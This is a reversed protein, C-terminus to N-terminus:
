IIDFNPKPKEEDETSEEEEDVEKNSKLKETSYEKMGFRDTVFELTLVILELLMTHEYPNFYISNRTIEMMMIKDRQSDVVYLMEEEIFAGFFNKDYYHLIDDTFERREKQSFFRGFAFGNNLLSTIKNALAKDRM